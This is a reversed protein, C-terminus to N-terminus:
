ADHLREGCNTCFKNNPNCQSGCKKCIPYKPAPRLVKAGCAICFKQGPQIKESCHSCTPPATSVEQPAPTGCSTCFKVEENFETECNRCRFLPTPFPKTLESSDPCSFSMRTNQIAIIDGNKLLRGSKKVAQNNITIPYNNDLSFLSFGGLHELILALNVGKPFDKLKIDCNRDNGILAQSPIHHRKKETNNSHYTLFALNLANLTKQDASNTSKGPSGLVSQPMEGALRETNRWDNHAVDYILWQRNIPNLFFLMGNVEIKWNDMAGFAQSVKLEKALDALIPKELQKEVDTFSKHRSSPNVM